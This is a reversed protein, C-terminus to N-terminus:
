EEAVIDEENDSEIIIKRRKMRKPKEREKKYDETIKDFDQFLPTHGKINHWDARGNASLQDGRGHVGHRAETMWCERDNENAFISAGM